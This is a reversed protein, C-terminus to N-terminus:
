VPQVFGCGYGLIVSRVPFIPLLNKWLILSREGHLGGILMNTGNKRAISSRPDARSFGVCGIIANSCVPPLVWKLAVNWKLGLVSVCVWLPQQHIIRSLKPVVCLSGVRHDERVNTRCNYVPNPSKTLNAGDTQLCPLVSAHCRSTCTSDM